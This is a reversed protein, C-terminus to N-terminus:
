GRYPPDSFTSFTLFSSNEFNHYFPSIYSLSNTEILLLRSYLKKNSIIARLGEFHGFYSPFWKKGIKAMKFPKFGYYWVFIIYDDEVWRPSCKLSYIVKRGYNQFNLNKLMKLMKLGRRVPHLIEFTPLISTIIWIPSYLLM